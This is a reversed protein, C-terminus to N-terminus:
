DSSTRNPRRCCAATSGNPSAMPSPAPRTWFSPTWAPPTRWPKPKKSCSAKRPARAPGAMIATPTALGLACPCAIVLVVVLRIMSPVFDGTLMSEDVASHGETVTGDVPIREGPRVVLLIEKEVTSPRDGRGRRGRRDLGDQAASRDAQPFFGAVPGHGTKEVSISRHARTAGIPGEQSPAM